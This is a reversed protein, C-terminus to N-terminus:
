GSRLDKPPRRMRRLQGQNTVRYITSIDTLQEHVLVYRKGDHKLVEGKLRAEGEMLWGFQPGYEQLWAVMARAPLQEDDVTM